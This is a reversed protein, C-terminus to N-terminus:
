SGCSVELPSVRFLKYMHLGVGRFYSASTNEILNSEANSCMKNYSEIIAFM